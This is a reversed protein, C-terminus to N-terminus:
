EDVAAAIAATAAAFGVLLLAALALMGISFSSLRHLALCASARRLKVATAAGDAEQVANALEMTNTNGEEERLQVFRARGALRGQRSRLIDDLADGANDTPAADADM